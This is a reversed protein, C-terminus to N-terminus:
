LNSLKYLPWIPTKRTIKWRKTENPRKIILKIIILAATALIAAIKKKNNNGKWEFIIETSNMEFPIDFFFFSIMMAISRASCVFQACPEDDFERCRMWQHSNSISNIHKIKQCRKNHEFPLLLWRWQHASILFCFCLLRSMSYLCCCYYYDRKCQM